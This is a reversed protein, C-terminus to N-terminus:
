GDAKIVTGSIKQFATLLRQWGTTEYYDVAVLNELRAPVKADEILLPIIFTASDPKEDAIDLAAKLLKHAFDTKTMFTNTICVLVVDAARLMEPIMLKWDDGPQLRDFPIWAEFGSAVIRRALERIKLDDEKAHCLFVRLTTPAAAATRREDGTIHVTESKTPMPSVLPIAEQDASLVLEPTLVEHFSAPLNPPRYGTKVQMLASVSKHVLSGVPIKRREGRPIRFSARVGGNEERLYRAPLLELLWWPGHLSRHIRSSPRAGVSPHSSQIAEIRAQDVLLAAKVAEALIWNFSILALGSEDERYGGGVDSHVGAFWVEKIDQGPEAARWLNPRFSSRREDIALAHRGIRVDPNISTYPLRLPSYILGTSAPTEWLGVFWPRCDRSYFTRTQRAAGFSEPRAALFARLIEEFLVEDGEPVLGFMHILAGLAQAAFAGRSFGFLYLRDGDEFHQMLFRYAQSLSTSLGTGFGIAKINSWTRGLHNARFLIPQSGQWSSIYSVQRSADRLLVSFLRRVNSVSSSAGGGEFCIVVNKPM